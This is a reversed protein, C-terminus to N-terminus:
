SYNDRFGNSVTKKKKMEKKRKKKKKVVSSEQKSFGQCEIITVSVYSCIPLLTLLLRANQIKARSHHESHLVVWGLSSSSLHFGLCALKSDMPTQNLVAAPTDMLTGNLHAAQNEM